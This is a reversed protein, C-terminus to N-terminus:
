HSLVCLLISSVLPKVVNGDVILYYEWYYPIIYPWYYSLIPYYEVIINGIIPITHSLVGLIINRTKIWPLSKVMLPSNQNPIQIYWRNQHSSFVTLLPFNESNQLKPHKGEPLSVYSHFIVNQKIPLGDIFLCNEM